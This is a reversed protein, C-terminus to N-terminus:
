NSSGAKGKFSHLRLIEEDDTFGFLMDAAAVGLFNSTQAWAPETPKPMM